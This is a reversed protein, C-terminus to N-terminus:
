GAPIKRAAETEALADGVRELGARRSAKLLVLDGSKVFRKVAAAATAVDGFEFVRNLGAERAGRGLVTAMSGVAFLQEVGLEAARRGAEEHAAESDRGLEAMDGLVAVRRGKCPLESFTQLAVLLSDANANYADNLVCVGNHDRFQLRMKAGRCEDLGRQIEAQSLGLRAAVAIALTANIAQHRGLLATRYEGSFDQEPANVRFTVGEKTVRASQVRWDNGACLGIRQVAARTRPLIKSIWESDGNVFLHGDAPLLEALWGEERAVGELDGFFELHERGISTIVGYRPQVMQVLPALEGPHNTGVEIVAAQAARGLKLLTMPVGIDNNFSADSWVTSLKQQLVSAILEKVTTKGNSGAVAIVPIRFEDRYKAALRGLAARTDEVAIMGCRGETKAGARGPMVVVGAVGRAVADALFDHGDFREGRIAVFLDGRRTERSDTCVREVVAEREGSLHTGGCARAIYELSRPEM